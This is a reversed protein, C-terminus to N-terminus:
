RITTEVSYIGNRKRAFYHFSGSSDFFIGNETFMSSGLIDMEANLGLIDDYQNGDKGDIVVFCKNGTKAFYAVRKSDPSFYPHSVLDYQKKEKGDIVVFCKNGTKALYAVRKSDPSFIPRMSIIDYQKGEKGDVVVLEKDKKVTVAAIYALRKSDPSFTPSYIEIEAYEKGDKGDLIVTDSIFKSSIFVVRKKDPSFLYGKYFLGHASINDYLTEEKEDVILIQKDGVVAGYTVHKSDPSFIPHSEILDYQKGEKGDIVVLRYNAVYAIHKSDPSIVLTGRWSSSSFDVNGILKESTSLEDKACGSVCSCIICIFLYYL